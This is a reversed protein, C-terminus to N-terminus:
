KLRTLTLDKNYKVIFLGKNSTATSSSKHYDFKSELRLSVGKDFTEKLSNGSALRMLVDYSVDFGKTAYASPLTHNRKKYAVNFVQTLSAEQDVFFNTVYTLSIRALKNNDITNYANGKEVAFVQSNMFNRLEVMSNLADDVVVKNDATMLFWVNAKTKNKKIFDEAEIDNAIGLVKTIREKKIYGKEPKLIHVTNISDHAQLSKVISNVQVNSKWKGDGVVFITEGNYNDKLYDVLYDAHANTDPATKILSPASFKRQNKSFHPYVVPTKIRKAVIQAKDYYFPGIVVDANELKEDELIKSVEAGKRGTDFVQVNINIGQKKLSDIAIEAGMYFDTAMNALRSKKGLGFIDVPSVSDYKKALFPLLYAVNITVDPKIVDEYIELVEETEENVDSIAITKIKVVQGIKLGNEKLGPNLAYISDISVNYFRKLGYVTEKPKAIHVVFNKKLEELKSDDSVPQIETVKEVEVVDTEKEKDVVKKDTVVIDRSSTKNKATKRNPIVIITNADPRRGVDPNLRLLDRTKMDLRKAVDRMTEGEKIKYSVYRKQQGCSVAFTLFCTFVLFKFKKM